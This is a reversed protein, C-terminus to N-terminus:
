PETTAPRAQDPPPAAGKGQTGPAETVKKVEKLESQTQRLQSELAKLKTEIETMRSHYLLQAAAFGCALGIAAAIAITRPASVMRPVFKQVKSHEPPVDRLEIASSTVTDFGTPDACLRAFADEIQQRYDNKLKEDSGDQRAPGIILAGYLRLFPRDNSDRISAGNTQARDCEYLIQVSGIKPLSVTRYKPTVTETGILTNLESRFERQLGKGVIIEPCLVTFYDQTVSKTLLFPWASRM